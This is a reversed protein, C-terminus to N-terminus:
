SMPLVKADFPNDIPQLTKQELDSDGLDYAMFSIVWIGDEVEKLGGGLAQDPGLGTGPGDRARRQWTAPRGHCHLHHNEQSAHLHVRLDHRPRRPRRGSMNHLATSVPQKAL